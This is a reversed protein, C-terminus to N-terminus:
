CLFKDAEHLAAPQWYCDYDLPLALAGASLWGAPITRHPNKTIPGSTVVIDGSRTADEVTNVIIFELKSYRERMEDIFAEANDRRIDYCIVIQLQECVLMLAELQTRAQVGCGLLSVIKSDSRALMKATVASAAGTRQATIWTSDMVALPLGTEADNLIFLGTLYPLGREYNSTVGAQWKLGVAKLNAVHSMQAYFFTDERPYVGTKPPMQTHGKAKEAFVEELAQVVEEMPLDLSAVEAKSLFLINKGLQLQSHM